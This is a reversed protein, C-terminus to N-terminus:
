AKITTPQVAKLVVPAPSVGEFGAEAFTKPLNPVNGPFLKEVWSMNNGAQATSYSARLRSIERDNTREETRVLSFESLPMKGANHQHMERLLVAEPPTVNLKRVSNGTKHM